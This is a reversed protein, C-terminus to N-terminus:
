SHSDAQGSNGKLSELKGPSRSVFKDLIDAKTEKRILGSMRMGVVFLQYSFMICARTCVLASTCAVEGEGLRYTICYFILCRQHPFFPIDYVFHQTSFSYALGRSITLITSINM